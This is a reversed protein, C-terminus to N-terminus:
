HFPVRNTLLWYFGMKSVEANFADFDVPKVVYGNAGLDYSRVLDSEEASSTLVVVPLVKLVPDQKIERLVDMGDVKPLKLDLLMLRPLTSDRGAYNNRCYLYDLAEAGDKVWEIRNSLHRERLASMTLEADAPNDEVLLVEVALIQEM